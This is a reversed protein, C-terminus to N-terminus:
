ASLEEARKRAAEVAKDFIPQIGDEAMLVALAAATETPAAEHYAAKKAAISAVLEQETPM